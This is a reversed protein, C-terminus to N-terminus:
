SYVEKTLCHLAYKSTNVTWMALYDAIM